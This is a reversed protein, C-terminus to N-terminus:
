KQYIVYSLCLKNSIVSLFSEDGTCKAKPSLTEDQTVLEFNYQNIEKNVTIKEKAHTIKVAQRINKKATTSEM